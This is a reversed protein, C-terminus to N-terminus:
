FNQCNRFYYCCYRDHKTGLVDCHFHEGENVSDVAAVAVVSVFDIRHSNPVHDSLLDM